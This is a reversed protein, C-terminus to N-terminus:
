GLSSELLCKSLPAPSSGASPAVCVKIHIGARGGMVLHGQACERGNQAEAAEDTFSGQYV